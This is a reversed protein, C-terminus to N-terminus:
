NHNGEWVEDDIMVGAVRRLARGTAGCMRLPGPAHARPARARRPASAALAAPPRPWPRPQRQTSTPASEWAASSLGVPIPLVM